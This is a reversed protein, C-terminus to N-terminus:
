VEGKPLRRPKGGLWIFSTLAVVGTFGGMICTMSPYGLGIKLGGSILPGLSMGLSFSVSVMANHQMYPGDEGFLTPNIEHYKKVLIVSEVVGPSDLLAVGFGSIGLFLVYLVIERKGDTPVPIRLLVLGAAAIVCGVTSVLKTGFRDVGWGAVPGLICVAAGIPVMMLGSTFANFGFLERAYLPVTANFTSFLIAEWFIVAFATVMSSSQLCCLIPAKALIPNKPPVIEFSHDRDRDLLLPTQEEPNVSHNQSGNPVHGPDQEELYKYADKKEIVLLRMVFDVFLVGIALIAVSGIGAFHYLSGGIAPAFM